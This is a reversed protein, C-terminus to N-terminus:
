QYKFISLEALLCYKKFMELKCQKNYNKKRVCQLVMTGHVM